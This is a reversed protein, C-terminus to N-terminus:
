LSWYSEFIGRFLNTILRGQFVFGIPNTKDFTIVAVKDGYIRIEGDIPLTQVFKVERKEEAQSHHMNTQSQPLVAYTIINHKIRNQIFTQMYDGLTEEIKQIDTWCYIDKRTELMDEYIEMLGEVGEYYMVGPKWTNEQIIAMFDHIDEKATKYIDEHKEQQIDIWHLFDEQSCIEFMEVGNKRKESSVLGRLQLNNLAFKVSSQSIATHRSIKLFSSQKKHFLFNIVRIENESFGLKRLSKKIQVASYHASM